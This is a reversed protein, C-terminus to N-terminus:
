GVLLEEALSVRPKREMPGSWNPVHVALGSVHHHEPSTRGENGSRSDQTETIESEQYTGKKSRM